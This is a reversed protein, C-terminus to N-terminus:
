VGLSGRSAREFLRYPLLRKSFVGAREAVKGAGARRPPRRAELARQVCAAVLEPGPGSTETQEMLGVAKEVAAEYPDAGGPRPAVARRNATFDTRINGPEVITVHVGFPRVEHALAEAYGELAFKSASYFAQFPLGILGGLSGVLVLRGAGAARMTPLVEHIVRVAGWFNTEFQAKAESIRTNEAAGALGWGAAVVVADLCKHDRLVSAVCAQVSQDDDVDAVIGSWGPGGTGRRSAGVVTWGAGALRDATARGIGASAGTVLVVKAM